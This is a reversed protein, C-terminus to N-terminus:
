KAADNRVVPQFTSPTESFSLFNSVKFFFFDDDDNAHSSYTQHKPDTVQRSRTANEGKGSGRM